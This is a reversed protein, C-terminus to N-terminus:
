KEPIIFSFTSGENEGESEVWITGNHLEVLKKTLSLGIGTGQYKRNAVSDLQEFPSFVRDLDSQPIGIGNDSVSIKVAKNGNGNSKIAEKTELSYKRAVVSIKGGDPTYKVANSLLNYMIQKLKREDAKITDPINNTTLETNISHNMAKEKIMIFCNELLCPLDVDTPELELKGAEVKSIDLIDNILSLLHHSSEHVDNLFEKQTKNLEGFNEDLILETFGIIHNLPTRLEHSMNALFDSKANNATIAIEKAKALEATREKVKVELNDRANELAMQARINKQHYDSLQHSAFNFAEALEEFEDGSQIDIKQDFNRQSIRRAGNKLADIPVLNRRISVISLWLVVVLILIFLLPFFKNFEAIPAMVDSKAKVLALTWHPIKYAPRLFIQTYTVLYQEEDANLEFKGTTSL